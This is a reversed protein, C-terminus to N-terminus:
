VDTEGGTDLEVLIEGGPVVDGPAHPLRLILGPYPATIAHEMKMAGLVVLAEHASVRDGERVPVKIVTGAMPARLVQHGAVTEGSHASTEVDLPRPKRLVYVEGGYSVQLDFGSRAIAVEKWSAGVEVILRHGEPMRASLCGTGAAVGPATSPETAPFLEGNILASYRLGAPEPTLTVLFPEEGWHYRFSRGARSSVANGGTWPNYPRDM